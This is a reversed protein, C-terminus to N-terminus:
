HGEWCTVHECNSSTQFLHRTGFVAILIFLLVAISAVVYNSTVRLSAECMVCEGDQNLAPLGCVVCESM